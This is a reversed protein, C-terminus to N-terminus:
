DKPGQPVAVEGPSVATWGLLKQACGWPVQAAANPPLGERTAVIEDHREAGATIARASPKAARPARAHQVGDPCVSVSSGKPILFPGAQADAGLRGQAVGTLAGARDVFLLVDGRAVVVGAFTLEKALIGEVQDGFIELSYRQASADQDPRPPTPPHAAFTLGFAEFPASADVSRLVAAPPRADAPLPSRPGGHHVTYFVTSGAPVCITAPAEFCFRRRLVGEVAVNGDPGPRSKQRKLLPGADDVVTQLAVLLIWALM